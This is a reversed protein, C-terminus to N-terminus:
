LFRPFVTQLGCFCPAAIPGFCHLDGRPRICVGPLSERSTQVLSRGARQGGSAAVRGGDGRVAEARDVAVRQGALRSVGPM